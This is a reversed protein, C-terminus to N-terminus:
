ITKKDYLPLVKEIAVLEIDPIAKKFNALVSSSYGSLRERTKMCRYVSGSWGHIEYADATEVIKTIGSNLKWSDGDLFGGGWSALVKHVDPATKLVVWADPTYLM